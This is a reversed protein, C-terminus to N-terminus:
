TYNDVSKRMYIVFWWLKSAILFKLWLAGTYAMQPHFMANLITFIGINVSKYIIFLMHFMGVQYKSENYNLRIMPYKVHWTVVTLGFPRRNM